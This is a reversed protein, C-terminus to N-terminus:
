KPLKAVTMSGYGAPWRSNVEVQGLLDDPGLEAPFQKEFKHQRDLYVKALYKGAPLSPRRAFEAARASDRPATLSLHNQWLGGKGFVPRDATAWRDPTWAQSKDDWRYLDVQLVLQDYEAPIGELKFWIETVASVEANEAPLQDAKTYKGALTASYDDLFRRFQKYTRDGFAMKQGGGHMVQNLPKLLILSKEPADVDILEHERLHDLTAQPNGLKIWSIHEGHKKVQQQNRDPSHCAACRGVESWVNDVFSALVRDKRAHQIVEDPLGPGISGDIAKTKALEPDKVAAVIWARFAEYEEQRVKDTILSPKDPKRAIFALLKSAEPKSADILGASKLAAFTEAQTPRIYDKLDVGSLHCESCSSANKASLIPLIRRQFLALSDDAATALGAFISLAAWGSFLIVHRRFM